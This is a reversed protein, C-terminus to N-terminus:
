SSKCFLGLGRKQGRKLAFAMNELITMNEITGLKPDQMVKSVLKARYTQSTNTIDDGLFLVKGSDPKISGSILNFM